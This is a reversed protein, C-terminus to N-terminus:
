QLNKPAGRVNAPLIGVTSSNNVLVEPADLIMSCSEIVLEKPLSISPGEFLDTIGTIGIFAPTGELM